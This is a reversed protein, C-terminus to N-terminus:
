NRGERCCIKEALERRGVYKNCLAQHLVQYTAASGEREKWAILMAYAKECREKNDEHFGDLMGKNFELRRGLSKWDGFSKSLEKLEDYSPSGEKVAVAFFFTHDFTPIFHFM